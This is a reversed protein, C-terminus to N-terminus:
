YFAKPKSGKINKGSFSLKTYNKKFPIDKRRYGPTDVSAINSTILSNKYSRLKLAIKVINLYKIL